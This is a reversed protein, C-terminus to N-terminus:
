PKVGCKQEQGRRRPKKLTFHKEHYTLLFNEVGDEIAKVSLFM